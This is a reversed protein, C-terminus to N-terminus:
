ETCTHYECWQSLEAHFWHGISEFGPISALKVALPLIFKRTEAVQNNKKKRCRKKEKPTNGDPLTSLNHLRDALKVLWTGPEDNLMAVFYAVLDFPVGKTKFKTVMVVFHCARAGYKQAVEEKSLLSSDELIDHLLAAIIVDADRIGIRVLLLALVKPHEFYREGTDRLQERHGDKSNKYAEMIRVFDAPTFHPQVENMFGQRNTGHLLSASAPLNM